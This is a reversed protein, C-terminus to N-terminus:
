KGSILKIARGWLGKPGHRRDIRATKRQNSAERRSVTRYRKAAKRVAKTQRLLRSADFGVPDSAPPTWAPLGRLTDNLATAARQKARMHRERVAAVRDIRRSSARDLAAGTKKLLKRFVGM